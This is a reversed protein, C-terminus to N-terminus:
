RESANIPLPIGWQLLPWIGGILIPFYVLGHLLLAAGLAQTQAVGFFTLTLVCIYEFVGLAGPSAAVVIGVQLGILLVVSASLPLHLGLALLGFYNSLIATTWIVCTWLVVWMWASVARLMSLSAFGPELHRLLWIQLKDPMRLIGKMTVRKLPEVFYVASALGVSGVVTLVFLGTSAGEMWNPLSGWLWAFLFLLIFALTDLWKELALTGIVFVKARYRGMLFIRAIDGVRGPFIANLIQGSFMISILENIRILNGDQGLLVRWRLIKALLNVSVSLIGLLLFEPLTGRLIGALEKLNVQRVTWWFALGGLTLGIGVRLYHSLQLSSRKKLIKRM